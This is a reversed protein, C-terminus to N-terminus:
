IISGLARPNLVCLTLHTRTLFRDGGGGVDPLDIVNIPEMVKLSVSADNPILVGANRGAAEIANGSTRNLFLSPIVDVEGFDTVLKVVSLRITGGSVDADFNVGTSGVANTARSFDTLSNMLTPGAFLKYSGSKGGGEYVTQLLNRFHAETLTNSTANFRSSAASGDQAAGAGISRFARAASSAFAGTTSDPNTFGLIGELKDGTNSGNDAAQVQTSGIGSEIDTKLTMLTRAKSAALLSTEPGAVDIMSAVPAVAASRQFVQIRNGIRVRNAIEDTFGGDFALDVGDRAPSGYVPNPLDDVLWETLLAKPAASQPLTAYMPHEHPAVRKLQNSLDERAGQTSTVNYSTSIAM